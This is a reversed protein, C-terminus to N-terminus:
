GTAESAGSAQSGTAPMPPSLASSSSGSASPSNALQGVLIRGLRRLSASDLDLSLMLEPKKKVEEIIKELDEETVHAPSYEREFALYEAILQQRVPRALVEALHQADRFVPQGTAPDLVARALLHNSKCAEFLDVNTATIDDKGFEAHAALGCEAYDKETLVRLAITAGMVTVRRRASHSGSLRTLIDM